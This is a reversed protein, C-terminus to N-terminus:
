ATKWLLPPRIIDSARPDTYKAIEEVVQMKGKKCCPCRTIDIGALKLMMEEISKGVVKGTGSSLGLLQRIKTLNEKRNRNALFGFHRVRVFGKPLAHLLFRRIFEIADLTTQKIRNTERDKYEFTVM